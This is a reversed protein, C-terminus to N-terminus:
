QRRIKLNKLFEYIRVMPQSEKLAFKIFRFILPLLIWGMLFGVGFLQWSYTEKAKLEMSREASKQKEENLFRQYEESRERFYRSLERESTLEQRIEEIANKTSESLQSFSKQVESKLNGNEYYEKTVQVDKTEDRKSESINSFSYTEFRYKASDFVIEIEDTKIKVNAVSKNETKQELQQVSKERAKCSMLLLALTFLGLINILKRM